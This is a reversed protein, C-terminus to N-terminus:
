GLLRGLPFHLVVPEDIVVDGAFRGTERYVEGDLAHTILVPDGLELRWYHALGAAAYQAPKAVRDTGVSLPSMVEVALLVDGPGALDQGLASRRIVQVDPVRYNRDDFRLGGGLVCWQEPLTPRLLATLEAVAYEHRLVPPPEVLLAGDVLEYRMGDDPLDYLDLVTFGDPRFPLTTMATM